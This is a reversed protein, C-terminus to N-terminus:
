YTFMDKLTENHLLAYNNMIQLMIDKPFYYFISGPQGMICSWILYLKNVNRYQILTSYTFCVDKKILSSACGYCIEPENNKITFRVHDSKYNQHIRMQSDKDCIICTSVHYTIKTYLGLVENKYRWVAENCMDYEGNPGIMAILYKNKFFNKFIVLKQDENLDGFKKEIVPNKAYHLQNKADIIADHIGAAIEGVNDKNVNTINNLYEEILGYFRIPYHYRDQVFYKINILNL